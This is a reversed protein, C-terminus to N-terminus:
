LGAATARNSKGQLLNDIANEQEISLQRTKDPKTTESMLDGQSIRGSYELELSVGWFVVQSLM